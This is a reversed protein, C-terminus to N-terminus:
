LIPNTREETRGETQGYINESNAWYNKRFSLMTNPTTYLQTQCGSKKPFIGMPCSHGFITLFPRFCPKQVKLFIM